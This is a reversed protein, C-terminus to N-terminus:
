LFGILIILAGITTQSILDPSGPNPRVQKNQIYSLLFPASSTLDPCLPLLSHVKEVDHWISRPGFVAFRVCVCVCLVFLFCLLVFFWLLLVVVLLLLSTVRADAAVCPTDNIKPQKKTLLKFVDANTHNENFLLINRNNKTHLKKDQKQIRKQSMTALVM